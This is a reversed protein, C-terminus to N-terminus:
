VVCLLGRMEIVIGLSPNGVLHADGPGPGAIDVDAERATAKRTRNVDM